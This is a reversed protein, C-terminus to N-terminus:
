NSVKIKDSLFFLCFSIVISISAPVFYAIVLNNTSIYNIPLNIIKSQYIVFCLITTVIAIKYDLNKKYNIISSVIYGLVIGIFSLILKVTSLHKLKSSIGFEDSKQVYYAFNEKGISHVLEILDLESLIYFQQIGLFLLVSAILQILIVKLSFKNM